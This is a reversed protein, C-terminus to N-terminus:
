TAFYPVKKNTGAVNIVLYGDPSAPIASAGGAAGVTSSTTHNWKFQTQIDITGLVNIEGNANIQDGSGSGLDVDNNFFATAAVTLTDASTSGIDVDNIFNWDAESSIPDGVITSNIYFSDLASDGITVSDGDLVAPGSIYSTDPGNVQFGLECIVDESFTVPVPTEAIADAIDQCKAFDRGRSIWFTM